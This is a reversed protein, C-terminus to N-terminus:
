GQDIAGEYGNVDLRSNETKAFLCGVALVVYLLPLFRNEENGFHDPPTDYIRDLMAYFSPKHMFRMLACADDLTNSCLEQAVERSPLDHTHPLIMDNPSESACKPSELFQSMPRAKMLPLGRPDPVVLGGFQERMRRMFMVGSSDGHYDWHGEDDIDLAGTNQVMSELLSEDSSEEAANGKLETNESPTKHTSQQRLTSLLQQPPHADFKPDDLDVDPLVTRLLAEAKQM